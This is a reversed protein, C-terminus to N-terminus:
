VFHLRFVLVRNSYLWPATTGDVIVFVVAVHVDRFSNNLNRLSATVDGGGRV